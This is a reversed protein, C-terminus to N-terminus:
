FPWVLPIVVLAILLWYALLPLGLRWFDGFRYGGPGTVMMNAATAIPTLFAAAGAVAILMLIPRPSVGTDHAAVVAVPALILVTATNSVVQGLVATLLFLALMLTYPHGDGVVNVLVKAIQNAGGSDKIAESLPILGGILIVTPWSISRIAQESSVVRLLVMAIAASLTAIAPPVAGSALLGVMCLLVLGARLAKGGLPAVQRRVLDPSDVVLMDRSDALAEIASWTGHVLLADGEALETPNTGLDRNVRRVALVVLDPGRMQGPYVRDGIIPSRPPVVVEAAGLEGTVLDGSDDIPRMAVALAHDVAVHSIERSPGTMVLVDQAALPGTAGHQQPRQRAVVSVEPYDGLPLAAPDLGILPSQQRVRLRYFGEYLGYHSALMDAYGSLDPPTLDSSRVPLLRPGFLVTIAITGILLPLGVAAFSLFGFGNGSAGQAATSVIVNVPSGTLALLSGAAGAFTLPMLLRSPSQRTRVALMVAMPLLAAVAGNQTILASLLACLGLVAILLRPRGSGVQDVLAQGAWTTLGAADLSESVVFLSALFAIVPNGFGALAQDLNVVGTVYLTLAALLAVIGVPLRNWIFLAIVCALIILSISADSM